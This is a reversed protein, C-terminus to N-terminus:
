GSPAGGLIGTKFPTTTGDNTVGAAWMPASVMIFSVDLMTPAMGTPLAFRGNTVDVGIKGDSRQRWTSLDM